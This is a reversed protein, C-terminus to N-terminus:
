GCAEAVHDGAQLLVVHDAVPRLEDDGIPAHVQDPQAILAQLDHAGVRGRVRHRRHPGGHGSDPEPRSGGAAHEANGGGLDPVLPHIERQEPTIV